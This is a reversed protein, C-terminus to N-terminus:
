LKALYNKELWRTEAALADGRLTFDGIIPGGTEGLDAFWRGEATPEVHSARRIQASGLETFGALDDSWLFVIRGDPTIVVVRSDTFVKASM